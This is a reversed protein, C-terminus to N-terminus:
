SIWYLTLVNVFMKYLQTLFVFILSTTIGKTCALFWKESFFRRFSIILYISNCFLIPVIFFWRNPTTTLMVIQSIIVMSLLFFALFHTSFVLHKGFELKRKWFIFLTIMAFFPILIFLLSKAFDSSTNDYVTAIEEHSLNHTAAIKRVQKLVAVGDFDETFFWQSPTRFIDIESLFLFFFINAVLFIQFPKMLSVRIGEVYLSSLRGPFFLLYKFSRIIRSDLNTIMEFAQGTITHFFFDKQEVVKEGCMPCYKGNFTFHCNKCSIM